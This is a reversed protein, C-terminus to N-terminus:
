TTRNRLEGCRPVTVIGMLIITLSFGDADASVIRRKAIQRWFDLSLDPQIWDLPSGVNAVVFQVPGQQLMSKIDDAGVDRIRKADLDGDCNWIASLPTSGVIRQQPDVVM